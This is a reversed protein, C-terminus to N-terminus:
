VKPLEQDIEQKFEEWTIGQFGETEYKAMREDLLKKHWEPIEDVDPPGVYNELEEIYALKEKRSLGDFGAPPFPIPSSM